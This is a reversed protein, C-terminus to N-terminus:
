QGSEWSFPALSRQGGPDATFIAYVEVTNLGAEWTETPIRMTFTLRDERYSPKTTGRIVGNVAIALELAEAQLEPDLERLAGKLYLPTRVDAPGTPVETELTVRGADSFPAHAPLSDARRGVLEKHPGFYYLDELNHQGFLEIKKSLAGFDNEGDPLFTATRDPNGTGTRQARESGAGIASLGDVAWPIPRDLIDAVTPFIDITVVRDDIIEGRDQGPLKILLPVWYVEGARLARLDEEDEAYWLYGIGHDSTVVVLAEALLGLMELEDLLEGLLLDAYRTQLLHAQHILLADQENQAFTHPKVSRSGLGYGHLENGYNHGDDNFRLPSHPVLMHLYFFAPAARPTTRLLEVFQQFFRSKPPKLYDQRPVAPGFDSWQTNIGPLSGAMSGPLVLHGYVILLDKGMNRFGFGFVPAVEHDGTQDFFKTVVEVGRLQHTSALFSVISEPYTQSSVVPQHQNVYRGTLLSPIAKTTTTHATVTNRYWSSKEALRAFNPFRVADIRRNEDLLSILPLEDFVVMIVNPYSKGFPAIEDVQAVPSALFARMAPSALFMAPAVVAAIASFGLLSRVWSVNAFLLTCLLAPGLGLGINALGLEGVLQKSAQLFLATFLVLIVLAYLARALRGSLRSALWLAAFIALPLALSLALVLLYVDIANAEHAVLFTAHDERALLDYLPHSVAM